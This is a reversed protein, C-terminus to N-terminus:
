KPPKARILRQTAWDNDLNLLRNLSDTTDKRTTEYLNLATISRDYAEAIIDQRKKDVQPVKLDKLLEWKVRNRSIGAASSLMNARYEQSRLLGWLFRTSFEKDKVRLVTFEKTLFLHKFEPTIVATAGLSAAINSIVIDNENAQMLENYSIEKGLLVEGAEPMGEYTIRLFPYRKEPDDSPNIYPGEILDVIDGLKKITLGKNIWETSVEYTKPLCYKVDMRGQIKSAPVFWEGKEGALYKKFADLVEVQEKDANERAKEAKSAPTKPPVDDLGVYRTEYM